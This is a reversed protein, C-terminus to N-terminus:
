EKHRVRLPIEMKDAIQRCREIQEPTIEDVVSFMVNDINEKCDEAFKLLANFSPLGFKPRTVENYEEPTPANLSISISDVMGRLLPATQKQHILDSLGNTNIRIPISSISRIYKCIEILAELRVLPEGFGCFVVEKYNELNYNKFEGIIESIDPEHDLWLSGESSLVDCEKRICFTCSCPCKNTINVYLSDGITYLIAM